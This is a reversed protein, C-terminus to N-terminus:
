SSPHLDSCNVPISLKFTASTPSGTPGGGNVLAQFFQPRVQEIYCDTYYLYGDNFEGSIFVFRASKNDLPDLCGASLFARGKEGM